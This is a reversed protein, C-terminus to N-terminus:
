LVKDGEEFFFLLSNYTVLNHVQLGSTESSNIQLVRTKGSSSKPRIVRKKSQSHLTLFKQM